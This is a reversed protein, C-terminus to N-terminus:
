ADIDVTQFPSNIPAINVPPNDGAGSVVSGVWFNEKIGTVYYLYITICIHEITM